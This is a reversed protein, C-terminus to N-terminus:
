SRRHRLGAAANQASLHRAASGDLAQFGPQVDCSRLLRRPLRDRRAPAYSRRAPAERGARAGRRPDNRLPPRRGRTATADHAREDQAGGRDGGRRRRQSRVSASRDEGRRHRRAREPAARAGARRDRNSGGSRRADSRLRPAPARRGCARARLGHRRIRARDGSYRAGSRAPRARRPFAPERAM